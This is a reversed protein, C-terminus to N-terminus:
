MAAQVELEERADAAAGEPQAFAFRGTTQLETHVAWCTFHSVDPAAALKVGAPPLRMQLYRFGYSVFRPEFIADATGGAFRFVTQEYAGKVLPQIPHTITRNNLNVREAHM